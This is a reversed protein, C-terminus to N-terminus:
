LLEKVFLKVSQPIWSVFDRQLVRYRKGDLHLIDGAVPVLSIEIEGDRLIEQSDPRFLHFSIAIIKLRM